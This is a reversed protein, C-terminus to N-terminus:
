LRIADKDLLFRNFGNQIMRKEHRLGLYVQVIATEGTRVIVLILRADM